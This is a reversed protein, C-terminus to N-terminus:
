FPEPIMKEFFAVHLIDKGVFVKDSVKTILYNGDSRIVIIDDIDSCDCVFEDKKLGTGIFGEARNVYLKENAACSATAQITEFNRLETKRERGKGYKKKIDQFWSITYKVINNLNNQVEEMGTELGKIFEDAKKIDFKSIRRVPKDTLKLLDDRTIERRFLKKYPVFAKDIADIVQEWTETDKELERYIKKEFFIKELSSMHWDEQLESLKIQLEQRLLELTYDTNQKLIESVGVFRPKDDEIVCCNPSIPVECDTFAYLADITVDPSIGPQLHVLIEVNEATNDDIKRIKIKGKKM